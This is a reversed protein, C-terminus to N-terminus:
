RRSSFNNDETFKWRRTINIIDVEKKMENSFKAYPEGMKVINMAAEDLAKQGSGKNIIMKEIMGESNISVTMILSGFIGSNKAVEPYNMAGMREVKNRWSEFYLKYIYEPSRSSIVKIRRRDKKSESKTFLNLENIKSLIQSTDIISPQEQNVSESSSKPEIIKSKAQSVIESQEIEAQSTVEQIEPIVLEEVNSKKSIIEDQVLEEVVDTHAILNDEQITIELQILKEKSKDSLLNDLSIGGIFLLHIVFSFILAVVLHFNFRYGHIFNNM